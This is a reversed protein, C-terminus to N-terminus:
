IFSMVENASVFRIQSPNLRLNNIIVPKVAASTTYLHLDNLLTQVAVPNLTYRVM